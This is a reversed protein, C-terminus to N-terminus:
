GVGRKGRPGVGRFSHERWRVEGIRSNEAEHGTKKLTKQGIVVGGANPRKLIEKSRGSMVKAVLLRLLAKGVAGGKTLRPETLTLRVTKLHGL